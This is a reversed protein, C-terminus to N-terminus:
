STVPLRNSTTSFRKSGAFSVGVPPVQTPEGLGVAEVDHGAGHGIGEAAAPGQQPPDDGRLNMPASTEATRKCIYAATTAAVREIAPPRWWSECGDGASRASAPLISSAAAGPANPKAM